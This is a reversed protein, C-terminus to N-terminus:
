IGRKSTLLRVKEQWSTGKAPPPPPLPLLSPECEEFAAPLRSDGRHRALVGAVCGSIAGQRYENATTAQLEGQPVSLVARASQVAQAVAAQPKAQRCQVCRAWSMNIEGCDCRWSLGDRLGGGEVVIKTWQKAKQKALEM